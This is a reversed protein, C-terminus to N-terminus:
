VNGGMTFEFLFNGEGQINQIEGGSMIITNNVIWMGLGHGNQRTTEHVELIKKPNQKYKKDLGKGSDLYIFKLLENSKKVDIKINLHQLSENQQTSNLILNDFIVRVMDEAIKYVIDGSTIIEITIWAYDREWEYKLSELIDMVNQRKREFKKKEIDTLMTNMFLILKKEVEQNSRLMGPVNKYAKKTNEPFNLTEWMNYDKLAAIINDYNYNLVNQANKMEHAISSAKLGVTSLVNLIRVDYKYKSEVEAKDKKYQNDKQKYTKIEKVLQKTENKTLEKVSSPNKIVKDSVPTSENKENDNKANIHRIIDQRYREFEKIGTLIIEIFLQYYINEDLGQRNSLDELVKNNEKDIMVYGAIQNERVRWAGSDHSAAAPSKRFRKGLGLWDKEGEYSSISFANRYLIIGSDLSEPTNLYKYMFKEKDILTANLNFYFNASFTGVGFLKEKLDAEIFQIVSNGKLEAEMNTTISFQKLNINPCYKEAEKEFEDSIVTTTLLGKDYSLVINSRCNIGVKAKPFHEKVKETFDDITVEIIMSTDNYVRELYSCLSKVRNKGWKERLNDIIIKTGISKSTVSNELTSSNWDTKWIIGKSDSKRSYLTVNEGLRALAFRGIGKSGAQIRKRNNADTIEYAKNSKGIHMWYRKIDDSDMGVGNDTIELRNNSFDLVLKLAKADYANKILELIAAEDTSFNQVGLLKAITSDEIVYNLQEILTEEKKM